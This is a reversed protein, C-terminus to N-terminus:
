RDLTREFRRRGAQRKVLWRDESECLNRLPCNACREGGQDHGTERCAEGLTCARSTLYSNSLKEGVGAETAGGFPSEDSKHRHRCQDLDAIAADPRRM